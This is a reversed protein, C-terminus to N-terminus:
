NDQVEHTEIRIRSCVGDFDEPPVVGDPRAAYRQAAETKILEAGQLRASVGLVASGYLVIYVDSM